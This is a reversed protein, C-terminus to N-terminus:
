EQESPKPHRNGGIGGGVRPNTRNVRRVLFIVGAAFLVVLGIVLAVPAEM